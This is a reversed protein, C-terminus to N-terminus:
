DECGIEATHLLETGVKYIHFHAQPPQTVQRSCECLFRWLLFEMGPLQAGSDLDTIVLVKNDELQIDQRKALRINSDSEINKFYQKLCKIGAEFAKKAEEWISYLGFEEALCYVTQSWALKGAGGERSSETVKREQCAPM